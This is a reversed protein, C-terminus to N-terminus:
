FSYYDEKRKRERNGGVRGGKPSNERGWCEGTNKKISVSGIFLIFLLLVVAWVLFQLLAALRREWTIVQIFSLPCIFLRKLSKACLADHPIMLHEGSQEINRWTRRCAAEALGWQARRRIYENSRRRCTLEHVLSWHPRWAHGVKLAFPLTSPFADFLVLQGM